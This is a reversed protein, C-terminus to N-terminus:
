RAAEARREGRSTWVCLLIGFEYLLILPLYLAMMASLVDGPAIVAAVISLSFYVIKRSKRLVNVDIIGIKFLALVVLPLQFALAFVLLTMITLNVYDDITIMSSVMSDQVFPIVRKEGNIFWKLRGQVANFWLQGNEPVKPDGLLEPVKIVQEPKVDVLEGTNFGKLSFGNNFALLFRVTIPMVVAYALVTGAVMLLVSLPIYRTITKRERPYLGAAVFMWMQYVMWPGSVCAAVILSVKLYLMFTATMEVNYTMPTLHADRLGQMLPRCFFEVVKEGFALSVFTAVVLGIVGFLLRRRLDELHEGLTMRYAHPDFDKGM